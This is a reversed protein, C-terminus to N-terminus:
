PLPYWSGYLREVLNGTVGRILDEDTKPLKGRWSYALAKANRNFEHLQTGSVSVIESNMSNHVFENVSKDAIFGFREAIEAMFAAPSLCLSEHTTLLLERKPPLSLAYEHIYAWLHSFKELESGNACLEESFAGPCGVQRLDITWNMRRISQWVAAPHRVIFIVAFDAALLSKCSLAAFPDKIVPVLSKSFLRKARYMTVDVGTRGGSLLRLLAKRPPDSPVRRIFAAQGALLRRYVDVAYGPQDSEASDSPYVRLVDKLGYDQNLPEHIIATGSYRRLIEGVFTTGSRHMGTVIIPRIPHM